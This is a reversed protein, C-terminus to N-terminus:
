RLTNKWHGHEDQSSNVFPVFELVWWAPAVALEDTIKGVADRVASSTAKWREYLSLHKAAKLAEAATMGDDADHVSAAEGGDVTSVRLTTPSSSTRHGGVLTAQQEGAVRSVESRHKADEIKTREAAEVLENIDIHAREIASRRFILGMDAAIIEKLM